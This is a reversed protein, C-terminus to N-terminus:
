LLLPFTLNAFALVTLNEPPNARTTGFTLCIYFENSLRLLRAYQLAQIEARPRGQNCNAYQAELLNPLIHLPIANPGETFASPFLTRAAQTQITRTM